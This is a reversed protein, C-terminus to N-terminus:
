HKTFTFSGDESLDVTAIHIRANKDLTLNKTFNEGQEEGDDDRSYILGNILVSPNNNKSAKFKAYVKYTGPIIDDFQRVAEQTTRLDDGFWRTRSKGADWIGIGKNRGRPGTVCKSDKCVYLDVNDGKDEWKIEFSVKCPVSPPDGKYKSDNQNQAVSNPIGKEFNNVKKDKSNLDTSPKQSPSRSVVKNNNRVFSPPCKPCEPCIIPPPCTPCDEVSPMKKFDSILVLLTDGTQKAILSDHLGGFIQNHVTDISVVVQPIKAAPKGGKPTIIFLFIVAGLAGSLLDLFSLNFMETNRRAM